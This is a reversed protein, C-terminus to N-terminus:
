LSAAAVLMAAALWVRAHRVYWSVPQDRPLWTLLAIQPAVLLAVCGAGVPKRLALLVVAAALQAGIGALRTRAPERPAAWYAMGFVAALAVSTVTLRGYALQGAMWPLVALFVAEGGLISLVTSAAWPWETKGLIGGERRLLCLELVALAALSALVLPVGLQVALAAGVVLAATATAVEAGHRAWVVDRWWPALQGVWRWLRTRRPERLKIRGKSKRGRVGLKRWKGLLVQWDPTQVATWLSGWAGDVLLILLILRLWDAGEWGFASSAVVGCLAAWASIAWGDQASPGARLTLLFGSRSHFDAPGASKKAM